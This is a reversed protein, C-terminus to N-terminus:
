DEQSISPRLGLKTCVLDALPLSATLGPSEIGFLNVLGDLGHEEAGQVMFDTNPAGAGSIKPRVGAFAPRLRTTDITPWLARAASAFAPLRGPDVRYDVSGVWEVDPGFRARGALDLTLHTGLGGPVPVPYILRTFPVAGAYDFYNGKALHRAPVHRPNLADIRGALAQAGLGAANVLLPAGVVPAPDDCLTVAWLGGRREIAAIDTGCILQAGADEASGLLAQMYAHSDIIGTQDSLLAGACRLAPEAAHAQSADLEELEVGAELADARIAHLRDLDAPDSAIILKGTRRHPIGAQTCFRYLRQRGEVCLRAKLSGPPYYIGAHIVESNRASTHTGFQQERELLLVEQGRRALARAVAIGVVGAGCVIADVEDM